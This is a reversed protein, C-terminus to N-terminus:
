AQINYSSAACFVELMVAKAQVAIFNPCAHKYIVLPDELCSTISAIDLVHGETGTFRM